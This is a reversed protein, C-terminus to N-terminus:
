LAKELLKKGDGVANWLPILIILTYIGLFKLDPAAYVLMIVWLVMAVAALVNYRTADLLIVILYIVGVSIGYGICEALSLKINSFNKLILYLVCTAGISFFFSKSVIEKEIPKLTKKM